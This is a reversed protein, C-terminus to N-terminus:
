NKDFIWLQYQEKTPTNVPLGRFRMFGQQRPGSWVVDGRVEGIPTTGPSWNAQVLGEKAAILETRLQAVDPGAKAAPRNSLRSIAFTRQTSLRRCEDRFGKRHRFILRGRLAQLCELGDGFDNLLLAGLVHQDRLLQLGGRATYGQLCGQAACALDVSFTLENAPETQAM